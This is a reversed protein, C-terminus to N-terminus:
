LNRLPNLHVRGRRFDEMNYWPTFAFWYQGDSNTFICRSFREMMMLAAEGGKLFVVDEQAYEVKIAVTDRGGNAKADMGEVWRHWAGSKLLYWVDNGYLNWERAQSDMRLLTWVVSTDGCGKPPEIDQFDHATFASVVVLLIGLLSVVSRRM